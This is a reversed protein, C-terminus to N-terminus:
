NVTARTYRKTVARKEVGFQKASVVQLRDTFREGIGSGFQGMALHDTVDDLSSHIDDLTTWEARGCIIADAQSVIHRDGM